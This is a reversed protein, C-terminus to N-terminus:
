ENGARKERLYDIFVRVVEPDFHKGSQEKIYEIAAQETWAERYPRDSTLADYVDVIAFMRAPLPINEGKLGYPYGTGDWKEHHLHPIELAPRLYAISQLMEYAFKPHQQMIKFEAESLVDTKLLISDPIGMKGIDHLLAGHRIHAVSEEFFGMKRALAITMETVRQTHGETEKDRLDMAKSWGEIAADYAYSLEENVKKLGEILQANEIALTAQGALTEFYKLWEHDPNLWSRHFLELVGKLVGKAKLPIGYYCQFGEAKFFSSFQADITDDPCQIQMIKDIQAVRGALSDSYSARDHKLRPSLFGQSAACDFAKQEEDFLLVAVADVGLRRKVHDLLIELTADLHYNSSIAVDIERLTEIRQLRRQSEGLLRAIELASNKSETIDTHTGLMRLPHGERDWEVISGISLIWKWEGSATKQRFEVRYEPIRGNIYDLYVQRVEELDDPHLRDLWRANTEIFTAPDYGLMAAYIDNIITEGTQVNLDYTGQQAAQLALRLREESERLLRESKKRDSIDQKIGVFHTIKGSPDVIPTIIEEELYISGDKRKNFLESRWVQGSLIANWLKQYFADDQLGSKLIRTNEGTIEDLRYGTLQEYAPNAWQICGDRDTVVIANAAAELAQSQLRIKEEAKMWDSIDQVIGSIMLPEGHKGLTLEGAEAWVTRVTGDPWVIRYEMPVPKKEHIVSANAREVAERDEPHIAQAIVDTLSGSFSNKDIGFIQYMQDSWEVQNSPIHWVWNGVNAVRQAKRLNAESSRLADEARKRETIDQAMVFRATNGEFDLFHSTVEVLIIKGDKLRHRWPGSTQFEENYTEINEMLSPVDEAPRIDKITMSLFEERSYGYKVIASDNVTLFRLTETDYIWMPFPNNEFLYKYQLESKSLTRNVQELEVLKEELKHILIENYMRYYATEDKPQVQIPNLGQSTFRALIQNLTQIFEDIDTGKAIFGDAGLSLAFERDEPGTYTATYFVFPIHCFQENSKWARCLGFGDLVPMLIDSIVLDPPEAHALELAEAGNNARAVDFSYSRLVTQLLYFNEDHDDVVLIKKM